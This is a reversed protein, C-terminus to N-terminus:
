AIVAHPESAHLYVTGSARDFRAGLSDALGPPPYAQVAVWDPTRPAFAALAHPPRGDAVPRDHDRFVLPDAATLRRGRFLDEFRDPPVRALLYLERDGPHLPRHASGPGELVWHVAEVPGLWDTVAAVPARETRVGTSVYSSGTGALQRENAVRSGLEDPGGVARVAAAGTAGIVGCAGLGLVTRRRM